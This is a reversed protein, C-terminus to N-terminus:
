DAYMRLWGSNSYSGAVITGAPTKIADWIFTDLGARSDFIPDMVDKEASYNAVWLNILQNPMVRISENATFESIAKLKPRINKPYYYDAVDFEMTNSIALISVRDDVDNFLYSTSPVNKATLHPILTEGDYLWTMGQKGSFEFACQPVHHGAALWGENGMGAGYVQNNNSLATSLLTNSGSFEFVQTGLKDGSCDVYNGWHNIMFLPEGGTYNRALFASGSNQAITWKTSVLNAPYEWASEIVKNPTNINGTLLKFHGDHSDIVGLIQGSNDISLQVYHDSSTNILPIYEAVKSNQEDFINASIVDTDHETTVRTITVVQNGISHVSEVDPTFLQKHIIIENPNSIDIIDVKDNYPISLGYSDTQERLAFIKSGDRTVAIDAYVNGKGVQSTKISSYERNYVWNKTEKREPHKFPSGFLVFSSWFRPHQRSIDVDSTLMARQASQVALAYEGDSFNRASFINENLKQAAHTEVPWRSALVTEAGALLFANTLGQTEEQFFEADYIATNCASLSVFSTSISLDAIESATLLGDDDSNYKSKPTLVLASESLNKLEGSIVGHTAFSIAAAGADLAGRLELESADEGFMLRSNGDILKAINRLEDRTNPLETLINVDVGRLKSLGRTTLQGSLREKSPTNLSPDGLGLFPLKPNYLGLPNTNTTLAVVTPSVAFAIQKTLWPLRGLGLSMSEELDEDRHTILASIPINRIDSSSVWLAKYKSSLCSSLGGFLDEYLQNAAEIPFQTDAIPNPSHTGTMALNVLKQNLRFLNGDVTSSEAVYTDGSFCLKHM